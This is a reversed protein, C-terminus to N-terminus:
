CELMLPGGPFFHGQAGPLEPVRLTGQDGKCGPWPLYDSFVMRCWGLARGRARSKSLNYLMAIPMLFEALTRRVYGIDKTRPAQLRLVEVGQLKDLAWPVPIDPSPIMVTVQHGQRVFEISLDRIQVAGSLVYRRFLM